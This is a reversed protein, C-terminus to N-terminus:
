EGRKGDSRLEYFKCDVHEGEAIRRVNPSPFSLVCGKTDVQCERANREIGQQDSCVGECFCTECANELFSNMEDLNFFSREPNIPMACELSKTDAYAQAPNYPPQSM